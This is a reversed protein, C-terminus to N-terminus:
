SRAARPTGRAAEPIEYVKKVYVKGKDSFFFVYSHTSAVFLQNVWDEDGRRWAWWQGQRRPEARPLDDPRRASSTARRPLHDGGHGRGPDPGRDPDRGRRPRDGHPAQRRLPAQHGRARGRHREDAARTPSSPACARRDRHLAAGYERPSSRASSAPSARSACRSSPRPRASPSTTTARAAAAEVSPRPAAPAACSSASARCRCPKLLNERAAEHRPQRPHDEVVRDIDSTAM